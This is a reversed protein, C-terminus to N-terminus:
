GKENVIPRAKTTVPVRLIRPQLVRVRALRWTEDLPRLRMMPEQECGRDNEFCEYADGACEEMTGGDQTPADQIWCSFFGCYSGHCYMCWDLAQPDFSDSCDECAQSPAAWLVGIALIIGLALKRM